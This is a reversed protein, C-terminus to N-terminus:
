SVAPLHQTPILTLPNPKTSSIPGTDLDPRKEKHRSDSARLYNEDECIKKIFKVNTKRSNSMHIYNEIILHHYSLKNHTTAM